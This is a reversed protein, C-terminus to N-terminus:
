HRAHRQKFADWTMGGYKPFLLGHRPGPHRGEGAIMRATVEACHKDYEGKLYELSRPANPATDDRGPPQQNKFQQQFPSRRTKDLQKDLQKREQVTQIGFANAKGVFERVRAYAKARAVQLKNAPYRTLLRLFKEDVCKIAPRARKSGDEKEEYQEFIQIAGAKKLWGIARWWRSSAVKRPNQPDEPDRELCTLGVREALEDCSYHRFSGDKRWHGIRLSAIDVASFIAHQVLSLAERHESRVKRYSGDKNRKKNRHYGLRAMVDPDAFFEFSRKIATKLVAPLHGTKVKPLALRDAAFKEPNHGCRNGTGLNKGPHSYPRRGWMPAVQGIEPTLDTM